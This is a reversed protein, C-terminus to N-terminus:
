SVDKYDSGSSECQPPPRANPSKQVREMAQTYDGMQILSILGLVFYLILSAMGLSMSYGAENLLTFVLPPLFSLIQCAFLFVGMLEVVQKDDHPTITVFITTHQPHLWGQCMGWLSAFLYVWNKHPLTLVMSAAATVVIYLMLCVQASIVPNYRICCQHGLWTGPIGALLVMLIACGIELSNMHLYESMYTTAITALATNAAESFVMGRLFICVAPLDRSIMTYTEALKYFGTTLLSQGPPVHSLAPCDRFLYKWCLTFLPVCTITTILVAWRATGVDDTGMIQGPILVEVMYWIMSVYMAFFFHTQYQSQQTPTKSLEASYAYVAVVHLQFLISSAVQLWAM